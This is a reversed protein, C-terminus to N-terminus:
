PNDGELKHGAARFRHELRHYIELSAYSDNAILLSEDLDDWSGSYPHGGLAVVFGDAKVFKALAMVARVWGMLSSVDTKPVGYPTARVFKRLVKIQTEMRNLDIPRATDEIGVSYAYFGMAGPPNSYESPSTQLRLQLDAYQRVSADDFYGEWLINRLRPPEANDENRLLTARLVYTQEYSHRIDVYIWLKDM